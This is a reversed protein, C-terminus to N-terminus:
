NLRVSNTAKLPITAPVLPYTFIPTYDSKLTIQLFTLRKTCALPVGPDSVCTVPQADPCQCFITAELNEVGPDATLYDSSNIVAQRVNQLSIISEETSASPGISPRRVLAFQVGARVANSMESQRTYALSFDLVGIALVSFLSAFVATELSVMGGRDRLMSVPSLFRFARKLKSNSM